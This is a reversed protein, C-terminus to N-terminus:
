AIVPIGMEILGGLPVVNGPQVHCRGATEWGIAAGFAETAKDFFSWNVGVLEAWILFAIAVGDISDGQDIVESAEAHSLHPSIWLARVNGCQVLAEAATEGNTGDKGLQEKGIRWVLFPYGISVFNIVELGIREGPLPIDCFIPRGGCADDFVQMEELHVDGHTISTCILRPEATPNKAGKNVITLGTIRVTEHVEDGGAEHPSIVRFDIFRVLDDIRRIGESWIGPVGAGDRDFFRRDIGSQFLGDDKGVLFVQWGLM